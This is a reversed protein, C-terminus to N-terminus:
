PEVVIRGAMNPHYRCIHGFTGPRTVAASGTGGPPLDVDFRGEEESTVTHAVIDINEWAVRDGARVTVQAPLFAADRMEIRHTRGEARV